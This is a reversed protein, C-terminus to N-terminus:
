HYKKKNEQRTKGPVKRTIAPNEKPLKSSIGGLYLKVLKLYEFAKIKIIYIFLFVNHSHIQM